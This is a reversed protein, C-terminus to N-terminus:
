LSTSWCISWRRNRFFKSPGIHDGAGAAKMLRVASDLVHQKGNGTPAIGVVYLHTASRTPGAVRRGILTGIVTVATALALVRNPRRATATVWDVIDGLVGPIDTAYQILPDPDPPEAEPQATDVTHLEVTAGSSWGLRDALFGFARDLDCGLVLMVLDLPTHGVDAGFDRIGKPHIKLNLDREDDSKGSSSPRWTPAAEYGGRAAKLRHLPLAPVWAALNTMAADNLERHPTEEAAFIPEAKEGAYGFAALTANIQDVINAPLAPLEQPKVADLGETGSWRYPANTDPHITPPIVTQRGPGILECIVEGDITWRKSASVHPAYYFLTEGRKGIKRVSAGPLIEALVTRIAIDDTDIDIGVLGGFGGLVGVGTDGESWHAIETESPTRGNYRTQWRPLGVWQGNSLVGPRKTGPIIPVVAYGREILREAIQAFAGM